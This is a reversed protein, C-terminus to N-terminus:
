PTARIRNLAQAAAARVKLDPDQLAKQLATLADVPPGNRRRVMPTRMPQLPVRNGLPVPVTAQNERDSASARRDAEVLAMLLAREDISALAASDACVAPGIEGLAWAAERRVFHDGIELMEALASVSAPGIRGLAQAALRGLILHPGCMADVLAPIAADAGPGIQGLSHAATTRVKIDEDQLSAALAPAAAAADPGIRGLSAAAERRVNADPDSLPVVLSGVGLYGMLGLVRASEARVVPVPDALFHHLHRVVDEQPALRSLAQVAALPQQPAQRLFSRLSTM